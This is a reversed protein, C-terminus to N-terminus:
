LHPRLIKIRADSTGNKTGGFHSFIILIVWELPVMFPVEPAWILIRLGSIYVLVVGLVRLFVGQSGKAMKNIKTM